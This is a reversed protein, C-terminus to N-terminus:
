GDREPTKADLEDIPVRVLREGGITTDSDADASTFQQRSTLFQNLIEFMRPWQQLVQGHVRGADAMVECDEALASIRELYQASAHELASVAEFEKKKEQLKATAAASPAQSVRGAAYSPSEKVFTFNPDYEGPAFGLSPTREKKEGTGQPSVTSGNFLTRGGGATPAPYAISASTTHTSSMGSMPVASMSKKREAYARLMDDPSMVAAPMAQMAPMPISGMVPSSITPSTMGAHTGSSYTSAHGINLPATTNFSSAMPSAWQNQQASFSQSALPSSYAPQPTAPVAFLLDDTSSAAPNQGTRM